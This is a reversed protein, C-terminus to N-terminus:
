ILLDFRDGVKMTLVIFLAMWFHLSKKKMEFGQTVKFYLKM